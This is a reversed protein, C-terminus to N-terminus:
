GGCHELALHIKFFMHLHNQIGLQLMLISQSLIHHYGGEPGLRGNRLQQSRQLHSARLQTRRWPSHIADVSAGHVPKFM